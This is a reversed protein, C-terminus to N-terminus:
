FCKSIKNLHNIRSAIDSFINFVGDETKKRFYIWKTMRGIYVAGTKRMFDIYGADPENMEM